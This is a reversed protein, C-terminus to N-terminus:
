SQKVWRSRARVIQLIDEERIPNMMNNMKRKAINLSKRARNKERDPVNIRRQILRFYIFEDIANEAYKHVKIESDEKDTQGDTIYELLITREFADSGFKIVGGIKDINFYGNEFIMSRDTNFGSSYLPAPDDITPSTGEVNIWYGDSDCIFNFDHDQLAAVGLSMRGNQVMPYTNGDEDVWSIKYYDVYDQPLTVQLSNNLTLEISIYNKLNSYNFEKIANRAQRLVRRREVDYTYDDPELGAMYEEVIYRLSIYMGKGWLSSDSCYDQSLM